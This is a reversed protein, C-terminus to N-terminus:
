IFKFINRYDTVNKDQKTENTLTINLLTRKFFSGKSVPMLTTQKDGPTTWVLM